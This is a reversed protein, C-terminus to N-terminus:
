GPKAGPRVAYTAIVDRVMAVDRERVALIDLYFIARTRESQLSQRAVYDIVERIGSPHRHHMIYQGYNDFLFFGKYSKEQALWTLMQLYGRYQARNFFQCEFFLMPGQDLTEDCSRLVDFDYGDVDSKILRVDGIALDKLIRTLRTSLIDGGEVAQKTGAEGVLTVGSVDHGVLAKVTTLTATPFRARM